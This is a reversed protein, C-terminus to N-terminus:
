SYTINGPWLSDDEQFQERELVYESAPHGMVITFSEGGEM